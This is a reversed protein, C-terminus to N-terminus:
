KAPLFGGPVTYWSLIEPILRGAVVAPDKAALEMAEERTSTLFVAIGRLDASGDVPGVLCIKGGEYLTKLHNLHGAQIAAM